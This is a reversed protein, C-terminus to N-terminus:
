KDIIINVEASDLTNRKAIKCGRGKEIIFAGISNTEWESEENDKLLSDEIHKFPGTGYSPDM